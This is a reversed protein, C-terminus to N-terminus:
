ITSAMLKTEKKMHKLKFMNNAVLLVRIKFKIFSRYGFAIRKIVKILNNIGEIRGNSFEYKMSNEIYEQQEKFTKLSTKMYDSIKNNANDVAEFFAISNKNRIARILDQYLYYTAELEEDLAILYSVIDQERMLSSFCTYKQFTGDKINDCNKLLLRWYRKLKNYNAKDSKMLRIRNKNLSRSILQVIHFRDTITKANPFLAKILSIYPMYM